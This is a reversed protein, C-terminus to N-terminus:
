LDVLLGLSIANNKIKLNEDNSAMNLSKGIMYQVYLALNNSIPQSFGVGANFNIVM